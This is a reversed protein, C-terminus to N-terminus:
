TAADFIAQMEPAYSRNLRLESPTLQLIPKPPGLTADMRAKQDWFNELSPFDSYKELIRTVVERHEVSDDWFPERFAIYQEGPQWRRGAEEEEDSTLRPNNFHCKSAICMALVLTKRDSLFYASTKYKTMFYSVRSDKHFVMMRKIRAWVSSPVLYENTTIIGPPFIQDVADQHKRQLGVPICGDLYDRLDDLLQWGRGPMLDPPAGPEPHGKLDEFVVIRQNIARGLEFPNVGRDLSNTNINLSRGGFFSLLANATTTKGSNFPGKFILWRRKPEAFVLADYVISMFLDAQWGLIYLMCQAAVYCHHSSPESEDLERIIEGLRERYFSHGTLEHCRVRLDGLVTNVANQCFKKKDKLKGFLKANVYHKEHLHAHSKANLMDNQCSNECKKCTRIPQAMKDYFGLVAISDTFGMVLAWENLLQCDFELGQTSTSRNFSDSEECSPHNCKDKVTECEDSRLYHILKDWSKNMVVGCTFRSATFLDQLVNRVRTLRHTTEFMVAHVYMTQDSCGKLKYVGSGRVSGIDPLAEQVQHAKVKSYYLLFGPVTAHSSTAKSLFQKLVYPIEPEEGREPTSTRGRQSRPRKPTELNPSSPSRQRASEDLPNDERPSQPPTGCQSEPPTSFRSHSQSFGSDREFRSSQQWPGARTRARRRQSCRSRESFFGTPSGRTSSPRQSSSEARSRPSRSRSWHRPPRPPGPPTFLPYGHKRQQPPTKPRPPTHSPGPADEHSPGPADEPPSPGEPSFFWERYSNTTEENDFLDDYTDEHTSSFPPVPAEEDEDGSSIIISDAQQGSNFNEQEAEQEDSSIVPTNSGESESSSIIPRAMEEDSEDEESDNKRSSSEEEEEDDDSWTWNPQEPSNTWNPQQPSNPEPPDPDTAQYDTWLGTMYKLIEQKEANGDTKDPHFARAFYHYTKKLQAETASFLPLNAGHQNFFTVLAKKRVAREM